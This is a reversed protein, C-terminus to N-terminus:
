KEASKESNTQKNFKNNYPTKFNKNFPRRHFTDGDVKFWGRYPVTGRNVDERSLVMTYHCNPCTYCGHLRKGVAIRKKCKPCTFNLKM